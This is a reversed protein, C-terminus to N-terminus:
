KGALKRILDSIVQKNEDSLLEYNQTISDITQSESGVVSPLPSKLIRHVAPVLRSQKTEPSFLTTIASKSVKLRRALDARSIKLEDM